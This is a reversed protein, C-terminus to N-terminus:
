RRCLSSKRYIMRAPVGLVTIGPEISGGALSGAGVVAGDGVVTGPLLTANSGVLVYEGVRCCGSIRAGPYVACFDRLVADHGISVHMDVIAHAGIKANVSTVSLPGIYSGAGVEVNNSLIATPHVLTAPRWGLREAVRAVNARVNNEGIACFFWLERRPFDRDVDELTGHVPYGVHRTGRKAVDGDAYGIINWPAPRDNAIGTANIDGAVSAAIAGFGGAGIIVLERQCAAGPVSEDSVLHIDHQM